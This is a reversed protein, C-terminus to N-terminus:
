KCYAVKHYFVTIAETFLLILGDHSDGGSTNCIHINLSLVLTKYLFNISNQFVFSSIDIIKKTKRSCEVFDFLYKCIGFNDSAM